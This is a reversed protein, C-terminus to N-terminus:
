EIKSETISEDEIKILSGLSKKSTLTNNKIGKQHNKM